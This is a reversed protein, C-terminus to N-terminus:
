NLTIGMLLIQGTEKTNNRPKPLSEILLVGQQGRTISAYHLQGAYVSNSQVLLPTGNAQLIPTLTHDFLTASTDGDILANVGSFRAPSTVVPQFPTNVTGPQTVILGATHAETVFWLGASDPQILRKLTVELAVGPSQESLEITTSDMSQSILQVHPDQIWGLLDRSMQLATTTANNWPLQQGKNANRQLMEAEERSTVPYFGSFPQQVFHGQQWIYERYINQQLPQLFAATEATLRTDRMGIVLSANSTIEATGNALNKQAFLQVLQPQQQRMTCGFIYVDLPSQANHTTVQILAAPNGGALKEGIQVAAIEQNQAQFNIIQTYDTSRLLEACTNFSFIAGIQPVIALTHLLLLVGVGGFLLLLLHSKRFKRFRAQKRHVPTQGVEIDPVVPPTRTIM